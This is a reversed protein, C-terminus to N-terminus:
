LWGQIDHLRQIISKSFPNHTQKVLHRISKCMYSYTHIPLLYALTTWALSMVIVLYYDEMLDILRGPAEMIHCGILIQLNTYTCELQFSHQRKLIM